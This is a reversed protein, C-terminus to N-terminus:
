RGRRRAPRAARCARRASRAILAPRTRAAPRAGPGARGATRDTKARRPLGAGRGPSRQRRAAIRDVSRVSSRRGRRFRRSGDAVRLRIRRSEDDLLQQGVTLRFCVAALRGSGSSSGSATQHTVEPPTSTKKVWSSGPAVAPVAPPVEAPDLLPARDERDAANATSRAAAQQGDPGPRRLQQLEGAAVQDPQAELFPQGLLDGHQDVVPHEPDATRQAPEHRIGARWSSSQSCRDGVNSGRCARKPTRSPTAQTRWRPPVDITGRGPGAGTSALELGAKGQGLVEPERRAVAQRTVAHSVCPWSGCRAIGPRAQVVKVPGDEIEDGPDLLLFRLRAPRLKLSRDGM